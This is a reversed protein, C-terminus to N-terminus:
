ECIYLIIENEWGGGRTVGHSLHSPCPPPTEASAASSDPSTACNNPALVFTSVIGAAGATARGANAGSM